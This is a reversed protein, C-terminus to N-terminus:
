AFLVGTESVSSRHWKWALCSFVSGLPFRLRFSVPLLLCLVVCLVCFCFCTNPVTCVRDKLTRSKGRSLEFSLRLCHRYSLSGGIGCRLRPRPPIIPGDGRCRTRKKQQTTKNTQPRM